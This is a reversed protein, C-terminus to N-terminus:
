TGSITRQFREDGDRGVRVSHVIHVVHRRRWQLSRRHGDSL